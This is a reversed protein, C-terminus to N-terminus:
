TRYRRSIVSVLEEDTPIFTMRRRRPGKRRERLMYQEQSSLVLDILDTISSSVQVPIGELVMRERLTSPLEGAERLNLEELTALLDDLRRLRNRREGEELPSYFEKEQAERVHM